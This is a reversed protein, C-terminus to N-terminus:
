IFCRRGCTGCPLGQLTYRRSRDPHTWTLTVISMRRLTSSMRCVPTHHHCQHMIQCFRLTDYRRDRKTHTVAAFSVTALRLYQGARLSEWPLSVGSPLQSLTPRLRTSPLLFESTQKLLSHVIEYVLHEVITRGSLPYFGQPLYSVRDEKDLLVRFM